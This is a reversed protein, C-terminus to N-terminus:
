PAPLADPRPTAVVGTYHCEGCCRGGCAPCNAFTWDARHRFRGRGCHYCAIGAVGPAGAQHLSMCFRGCADCAGAPGFLLKDYRPM